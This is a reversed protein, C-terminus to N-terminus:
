PMGSVFAVSDPPHPPAVSHGGGNHIEGEIVHAVHSLMVVLDAFLNLDFNNGKSGSQVHQSIVGRGDFRADLGHAFGHWVEGKRRTPISAFIHCSSLHFMDRDDRMRLNNVGCDDPEHFQLLLARSIQSGSSARGERRNRRLTTWCILPKLGLGSSRRTTATWRAGFLMASCCWPERWSRNPHCNKSAM